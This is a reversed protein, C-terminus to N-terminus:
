AISLARKKKLGVKVFLRDFVTEEGKAHSNQVYRYIGYSSGVIVVVANIGVSCVLIKSQYIKIFLKSDSEKIPNSVVPYNTKKDQCSKLDNALQENKESLQRIHNEVEIMSANKEDAFTVEPVPSHPKHLENKDQLEEDSDQIPNKKKELFELLRNNHERKLMRTFRDIMKITWEERVSKEKVESCAELIKLENPPLDSLVMKYLEKCDKILKLFILIKENKEETKKQNLFNKINKRPKTKRNDSVATDDGDMAHLLAGSVILVGFLLLKKVSKRWIIENCSVMM